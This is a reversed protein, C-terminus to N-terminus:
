KEKLKRIPRGENDYVYNRLKTSDAMAQSLRDRYPEALEEFLYAEEHLNHKSRLAEVEGPKRLTYKRTPLAGEITRKEIRYFHNDDQYIIELAGSNTRNFEANPYEENHLEWWAKIGKIAEEENEYSGHEKKVNSLRNQWYNTYVTQEM